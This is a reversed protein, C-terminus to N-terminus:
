ERIQLGDHELDNGDDGDHKCDRNRDDEDKGRGLRIREAELAGRRDLRRGFLYKRQDVVKV